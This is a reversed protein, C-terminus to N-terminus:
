RRKRGSRGQTKEYCALLVGTGFGPVPPTFKSRLLLLLLLLLLLFSSSSSSSSSYSSSSSSSYSSTAISWGVIQLYCRRSDASSADLWNGSDSVYNESGIKGPFKRFTLLVLVKNRGFKLSRFKCVSLGERGGGFLAIWLIINGVMGYQCHLFVQHTAFFPNNM